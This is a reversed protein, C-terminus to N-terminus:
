SKTDIQLWNLVAVHDGLYAKLIFLKFKEIQTLETEHSFLFASPPAAVLGRTGEVLVDVQSLGSLGMRVGASACVESPMGALIAARMRSRIDDPPVSFEVDRHCVILGGIKAVASFEAIVAQDFEAVKSVNSGVNAWLSDIVAQPPVILSVFLASLMQASAHFDAPSNFFSSILIRVVKENKLLSLSSLAETLAAIQPAKLIRMDHTRIFDHVKREEPRCRVSACSSIFEAFEFQNLAELPMHAILSKAPFQNKTFIELLTLKDESEGDGVAEALLELNNVLRRRDGTARYQAAVTATVQTLQPLSLSGLRAQFSIRNGQHIQHLVRDLEISPGGSLFRRFVRM